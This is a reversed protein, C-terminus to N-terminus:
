SGYNIGITINCKKAKYGTYATYTDEDFLNFFNGIMVFANLRNTFFYNGKLSLDWAVRRARDHQIKDNIDKVEAKSSIMLSANLLLKEYPTYTLSPKLKFTPKHYWWIPTSIPDNYVSYSGKLTMYWKRHTYHLLGALKCQSHKHNDAQMRYGMPCVTQDAVMCSRNSFQKYAVNVYYFLPMVTTNGGKSGLEIKLQEYYHHLPSTSAIFPNKIVLDKLYVPQVSSGIGIGGIHIYPNLWNTICKSLKIIPYCETTSINGPLLRNHYAIKAGVKVEMAKPLALVCWPTISLITRTQEHDRNTYAAINNYTAIRLAFLDWQRRWKGQLTLLNEKINENHYVLMDYHLMWRQITKGIAQQIYLKTGSQHLIRKHSAGDYSHFWSPQYDITAKCYWNGIHYRGQLALLGEKSKTNWPEPIYAINAWWNGQLLTPHHLMLAIHPHIPLPSNRSFAIAVTGYYHWPLTKYKPESQLSFYDIAAPDFLQNTTTLDNITPLSKDHAKPTPIPAKFFLKPAPDIKHKQKKEIIFETDQITGTEAYCPVVIIGIWLFIRTYKMFKLNLYGWIGKPLLTISDLAPEAMGLQRQRTIAQGKLSRQM